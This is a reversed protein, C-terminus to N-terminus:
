GQNGTAQVRADYEAVAKLIADPGQPYYDRGNPYSKGVAEEAVHLAHIADLLGQLLEKKSTGNLHVTPKMM